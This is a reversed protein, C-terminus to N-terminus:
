GMSFSLQNNCFLTSLETALATSTLLLAELPPVVDRVVSICWLYWIRRWRSWPLKPSKLNKGYNFIITTQWTRMNGAHVQTQAHLYVCMFCVFIMFLNTKCKRKRFKRTYDAFVLLGEFQAGNSVRGNCPTTYTQSRQHIDTGRVLILM